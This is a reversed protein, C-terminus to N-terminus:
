ATASSGRTCARASGAAHTAREIVLIAAGEGLSLGARRRDFPRCPEPALAHLANFGAFITRCMSETGGAIVADARGLRIWDLAIGLATGSSSCATSLVLRPGGLGFIAALVDASTAM